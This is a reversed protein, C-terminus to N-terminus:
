PNFYGRVTVIDEARLVTPTGREDTFEVQDDPGDSIGYVAIRDQGYDVVMGIEVDSASIRTNPDVMM